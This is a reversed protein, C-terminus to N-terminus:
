KGLYPKAADLALKVTDAIARLSGKVVCTRRIENLEKVDEIVREEFRYYSRLKEMTSTICETPLSSFDIFRLAPTEGPKYAGLPKISSVLFPGPSASLTNALVKRGQSALSVALGDRINRSVAHSYNAPVTLCNTKVKCPVLFLHTQLKTASPLRGSVEIQVLPELALLTKAYREKVRASALKGGPDYGFLVYTYLGFGPTEANAKQLPAWGEHQIRIITVPPAIPAPKPAPPPPAPATAPVPRPPAVPAPPRPVLDPDCGITAMAPTWYGTRVCLGTGSRVIQGQSDQVYGGASNDAAHASTPVLVFM